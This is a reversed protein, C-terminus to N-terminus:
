HTPRSKIGADPKRTMEASLAGFATGPRELLAQDHGTLTLTFNMRRPKGEYRVEIEFSLVNNKVSTSLLPGGFSDPPHIWKGHEDQIRPRFDATGSIKGNETLVKLTVDAVVWPGSEQITQVGKWTGMFSKEDIAHMSAACVIM